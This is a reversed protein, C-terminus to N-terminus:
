HPHQTFHAQGSGSPRNGKVVTRQNFNMPPANREHLGRSGDALPAVRAPRPKPHNQLATAQQQQLHNLELSQKGVVTRSLNVTSPPQHHKNQANPANREHNTSASALSGVLAIAAATWLLKRV